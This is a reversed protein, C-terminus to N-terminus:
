STGARAARDTRDSSRRGAVARCTAVGALGVILLIVSSPEPVSGSFGIVIQGDSNLAISADYFSFNPDKILGENVVKPNKADPSIELWRIDAHLTTPDQVTQVAWIFGDAYIVNSSLRLDGTDILTADGPQPAGPAQGYPKMAITTPNAQLAGNALVQQFLQGGQNNLDTALLGEGKLKATLDGTPDVLPEVTSGAQAPAVGVLPTLTPPLGVKGMSAKTIDYISNDLYAPQGGPFNYNNVSIYVDTKNIGLTDFDAARNAPVQIAYGFWKGTPDNNQSVAVLVENGPTLNNGSSKTLASAYWRQGVPDYLVRPDFPDNIVNQGLGANKLATNWFDIPAQDQLSKGQPSFVAYRSNLTEMFSKPGAAGMTDPPFVPKDGPMSLGKFKNILKGDAGTHIIETAWTDKAVAFEQVTWFTKDKPDVTTASYDGWRNRQVGDEDPGLRVYSAKGPMMQAPKGFDVKNGKVTFQGFVQWASAYGTQGRATGAPWACLGALAALATVRASTFM